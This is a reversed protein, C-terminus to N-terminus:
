STARRTRVSRSFASPRRRPIPRVAHATESMSGSSRRVSGMAAATDRGGGEVPALLFVARGDRTTAAPNIGWGPAHELTAVLTRKSPDDAPASYIRDALEGFEAFVALPVGEHAEERDFFPLLRLTGFALALLALVIAGALAPRPLHRPRFM